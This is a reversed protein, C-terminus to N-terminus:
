PSYVVKAKKRLDQVAAKKLAVVKSKKLLHKIRLKVQEFGLKANVRKDILKLLWFRKQPGAIVTSLDGKKMGGAINQWPAPLQNWHLYGLDWPAKASPPLKPFQRKAVSEFTAGKVIEARAAELAKQKGKYLIQWFHFETQMKKAHKEFYAKAEADSIIAKGFIQTRHYLSSMAKRKFANLQAEMQHTKKVYAPDNGLALRNAEQHFIEETILSELVRSRVDKTANDKHQSKELAFTVDAERIPVGNVIALAGKVSTAAKASIGKPAETSTPAASKTKCCAAILIGSLLLLSKSPACM